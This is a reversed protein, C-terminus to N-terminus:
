FWLHLVAAKQFLISTLQDITNMPVAKPDSSRSVISLTKKQM